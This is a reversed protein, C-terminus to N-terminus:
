HPNEEALPDAGFRNDGATGKKSLFYIPTILAGFWAIGLLVSSDDLSIFNFAISGVIVLIGVVIVSPIFLLYYFLVWWGSLNIDHLRRVSVCILAPLTILSWATSFPRIELLYPNHRFFQIDGFFRLLLTVIIIVLIFWWFESRSARGKITIFKKFCTKVATQMNM